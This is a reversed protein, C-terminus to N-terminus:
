KLLLETLGVTKNCVENEVDAVYNNLLNQSAELDTQVRKLSEIEASKLSVVEFYRHRVKDTVATIISMKIHEPKITDFSHQTSYPTSTSSSEAPRTIGLNSGLM